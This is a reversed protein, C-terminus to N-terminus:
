RLDNFVCVSWNKDDRVVTFMAILRSDKWLYMGSPFNDCNFDMIQSHTPVHTVELGPHKKRKIYEKRAIADFLEKAPKIADPEDMAYFLKTKM